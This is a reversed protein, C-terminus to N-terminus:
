LTCGGGHLGVEDEVFDDDGAVDAFGIFVQNALFEIYLPVDEVFFLFFCAFALFSIVNMM